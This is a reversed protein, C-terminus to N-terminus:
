ATAPRCLSRVLAALPELDLPKEIVRADPLDRIHEGVDAAPLGSMFIVTLRPQRERLARVLTLGNRVDKLLWDCILMDPERQAASALADAATTATRVEHGEGGLFIGLFGTCNPDDDVVLIRAM